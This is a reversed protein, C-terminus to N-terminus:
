THLPGYRIMGEAQQAASLAHQAQELQQQQEKMHEEMKASYAANGGLVSAGAGGCCCCLNPGAGCCTSHVCSSQSHRSDRTQMLGAVATCLVGGPQHEHAQQCTDRQHPPLIVTQFVGHEGNRQESVAKVQMAYGAVVHMSPMLLIMQAKRFPTVDLKHQLATSGAQSAHEDEGDAPHQWGSSWM